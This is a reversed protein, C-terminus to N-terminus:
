SPALWLAPLREILRRFSPNGLATADIDMARTLPLQHTIPDYGDRMMANLMGKADRLDAHNFPPAFDPPVGHRGRLSQAAALFWSEFERQALAVIIPVDSRLARADTALRSGLVAPCNHNPLDCDLLILVAGNTAAAAKNAALRVYRDFVAASNVFGTASVRIPPNVTLRDLVGLKQHIRHLLAAVAPVDGQGEVIPAIFPM